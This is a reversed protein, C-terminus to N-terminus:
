QVCLSIENRAHAHRIGRMAIDRHAFLRAVVLLSLRVRNKQSFATNKTGVVDDWGNAVIEEYCMINAAEGRRGPQRCGVLGINSSSDGHKVRGGEVCGSV